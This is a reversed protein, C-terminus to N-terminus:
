RMLRCAQELQAATSARALEVLAQENEQTAVRTIARVKSYSLEGRNLADDIIPLTALARAVRVKERAAGLEIGTRWALWAACSLAGHARWGEAADFIRLNTLLSHTLTDLFASAEAILEGLELMQDDLERM